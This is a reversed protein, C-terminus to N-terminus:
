SKIGIITSLLITGRDSVLSKPIGHLRVIHDLFMRAFDSATATKSCPVIHTMKTLRDVFVLLSEYGNSVPLDVIFNCSIGKWPRNPVPLPLLEGHKLHRPPKARSCPDCTTVYEKVFSPMGPFWYNRSLLDLTKSVGFHGALPDDHHQRLLDLRLADDHPVYILNDHLLLDGQWSWPHPLTSQGCHQQTVSDNALANVIRQRFFVDPSYANVSQMLSGLQDSETCPLLRLASKPILSGTPQEQGEAYDPRRSPGDAPNKIGPTHILVFDYGALFEAWRAQRRNLIKTSM